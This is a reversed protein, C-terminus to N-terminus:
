LRDPSRIARRVSPVTSTAPDAFGNTNQGTAALLDARSPHKFYQIQPIPPIRFMPVFWDHFSEQQQPDITDSPRLPVYLSRDGDDREAVGRFSQHAHLGWRISCSVWVPGPM